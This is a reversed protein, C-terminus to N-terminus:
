DAKLCCKAVMTALAKKVNLHFFVDCKWFPHHKKLSFWMQGFHSWFWFCWTSRFADTYCSGFTASAFVCQSVQDNQCMLTTWIAELCGGLVMQFSWVSKFQAQIPLTHVTIMSVSYVKSDFVVVQLSGGLFWLDSFRMTEYTSTDEGMKALRTKLM